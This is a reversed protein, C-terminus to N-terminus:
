KIAVRLAASGQQQRTAAAHLKIEDDYSGQAHRLQWPQSYEQELITEVFKQAAPGLPFQESRTRTL